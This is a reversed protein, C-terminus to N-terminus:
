FRAANVGAGCRGCAAGIACACFARQHQRAGVPREGADDYEIEALNILISGGWPLGSRRRAGGPLLVVNGIAISFELLRAIVRFRFCAREARQQEAHDLAAVYQQLIECGPDHVTQADAPLYQVPYVRAEDVGRARTVAQGPGVAVIQRHIQRDLRHRPQDRRGTKRVSRRDLGARRDDIENGPDM